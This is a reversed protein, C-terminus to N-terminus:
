RAATTTGSRPLLQLVNNLSQHQEELRRLRESLQYIARAYADVRERLDNNEIRLRANTQKLDTAEAAV